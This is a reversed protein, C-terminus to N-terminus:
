AVMEEIRAPHIRGDVILKELAVRAVERPDTRLLLLVVAEPTDDIILDVCPSIKSPASTQPRRPGIIRGKM